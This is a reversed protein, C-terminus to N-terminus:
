ICVLGWGAKRERGEEPGLYMYNSDDNGVNSFEKSIIEWCMCNALIPALSKSATANLRSELEM